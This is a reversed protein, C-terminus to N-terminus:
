RCPLGLGGSIALGLSMFSRGKAPAAGYIPKLLHRELWSLFCVICLRRAICGSGLFVGKQDFRVGGSSHSVTFSRRLEVMTWTGLREWEGWGGGGKV